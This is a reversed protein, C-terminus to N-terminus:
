LIVSNKSALELSRQIQIDVFHKPNDGVELGLEMCEKYIYTIALDSLCRTQGQVVLTTIVPLNNTVCYGIVRALANKVVTQTGHGSWEQDPYFHHWLDKYTLRNDKSERALKLIAQMVEVTDLKSPRRRLLEVLVESLQYKGGEKLGKSVYNAQLTKLQKDTLDAISM